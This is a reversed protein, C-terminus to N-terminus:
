GFNLVFQSFKAVLYYWLFMEGPISINKQMPFLCICMVQLDSIWYRINKVEKRSLCGDCVFRLQHWRRNEPKRGSAESKDNNMGQSVTVNMRDMMQWLVPWMWNHTRIEMEINKVFRWLAEPWGSELLSMEYKILIKEEITNFRLGKLETLRAPPGLQSLCLNLFYLSALNMWHYRSPGLFTYLTAINFVPKCGFVVSM